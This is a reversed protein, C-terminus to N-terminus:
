LRTSCQSTSNLLATPRVGIERGALVDIAIETAGDIVFEPCKSACRSALSEQRQKNRLEKRAKWLPVHARKKTWNILHHQIDDGEDSDGSSDSSDSGLDAYMNNVAYM